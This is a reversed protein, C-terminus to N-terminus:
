VSVRELRYLLLCSDNMFGIRAIEVSNWRGLGEVNRVYYKRSIMSIRDPLYRNSACCIRGHRENAQSMKKETQFRPALDRFIYVSLPPFPPIILTPHCTPLNKDRSPPFNVNPFRLPRTKEIAYYFTRSRKFFSPPTDNKKKKKPSYWNNNNNNNNARRARCVCHSLCFLHLRTILLPSSLTSIVSRLVPM